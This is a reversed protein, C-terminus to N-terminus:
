ENMKKQLPILKEVIGIGWPKSDKELQSKCMNRTWFAKTGGTFDGHELTALWEWLERDEPKDMDFKITKNRIM